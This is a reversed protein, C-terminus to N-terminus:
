SNIIHNIYNINLINEIHRQIIKQMLDKKECCISGALNTNSSADSM